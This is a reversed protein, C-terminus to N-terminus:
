CPDAAAPRTKRLTSNLEPNGINSKCRDPARKAEMAELLKLEPSELEEM